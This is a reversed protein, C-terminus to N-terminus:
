AESGDSTIKLWTLLLLHKIVDLTHYCFIDEEKSIIVSSLHIKNVITWYKYM